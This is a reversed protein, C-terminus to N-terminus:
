SAELSGQFFRAGGAEEAVVDQARFERELQVRVV